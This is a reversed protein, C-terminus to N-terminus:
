QYDCIEINNLILDDNDINLKARIAEEVAEKLEEQNIGDKYQPIIVDVFTGIEANVEVTLTVDPAQNYPAYPDNAAGPPYNNM